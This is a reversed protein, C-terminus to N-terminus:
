KTARSSEKVGKAPIPAGAARAKATDLVPKEDAPKEKAEAAREESAKANERSQHFVLWGAKIFCANSAHELLASFTEPKVLNVGPLVPMTVDNGHENKALAHIITPRTNEVAPM